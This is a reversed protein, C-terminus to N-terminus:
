SVAPWKGAAENGPLLRVADLAANAETLVARAQLHPGSGSGFDSAVKAVFVRAQRVRLYLVTVTLRWSPQRAPQFYSPTTNM